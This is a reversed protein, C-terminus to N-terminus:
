RNNENTRILVSVKAELQQLLDVDTKVLQLHERADLILYVIASTVVLAELVGVGRGFWVLLLFVFTLASLYLRIAVINEQITEADLYIPTINAVNWDSVPTLVFSFITEIRSHADLPHVFGGNCVVRSPTKRRLKNLFPGTERLPGLTAVFARRNKTKLLV